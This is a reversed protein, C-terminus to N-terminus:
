KTCIHRKLIELDQHDNMWLKALQGHAAYLGKRVKHGMEKSEKAEMRVEELAKRLEVVERRLDAFDRDEQSDFEFGLQLAM